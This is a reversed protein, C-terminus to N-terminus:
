TCGTFCNAMGCNMNKPCNFNIDLEIDLLLVSLELRDDLEVILLDEAGVMGTRALVVLKNNNEM